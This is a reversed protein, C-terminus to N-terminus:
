RPVFRVITAKNISSSYEEEGIGVSITNSSSQTRFIFAPQKPSPLATESSLMLVVEAMTPRDMAKEQACLLGIQTCRLVEHPSYSGEPSSNVIDLVREEKWLKWVHGILSLSSDEQYFGNSKKGSVIELLIVGFSFVCIKNFNKLVSCIRSVYAWKYVSGFGGQGLKDAPSFNNTAAVMTSVNFCAVDPPHNNQGLEIAVLTNKYYFSGSIPDFLKREWKNKM